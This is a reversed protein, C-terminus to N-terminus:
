RGAIRLHKAVLDELKPLLEERLLLRMKAAAPRSTAELASSQSVSIGTPMHVLKVEVSRQTKDPHGHSKTYTGGGSEYVDAEDLKWKKM